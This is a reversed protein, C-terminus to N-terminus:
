HKNYFEMTLKNDARAIKYLDGYGAMFTNCEDINDFVGLVIHDYRNKLKVYLLKKTPSNFHPEITSILKFTLPKRKNLFTFGKAQYKDYWFNFRLKLNDRHPVTELLKFDFQSPDISLGIGSKIEGIIRALSSLTDYAYTLFIEKGQDNVLAYISNKPMDYLLQLIEKM